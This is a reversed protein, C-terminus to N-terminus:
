FPVSISISHIRPFRTEQVKKNQSCYKPVIRTNQPIVVMSEASMTNYNPCICVNRPIVVVEAHHDNKLMDINM